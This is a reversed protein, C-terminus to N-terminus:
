VKRVKTRGLRCGLGEFHGQRANDQRVISLEADQVAEVCVRRWARVANHKLREVLILAASCSNTAVHKCVVVRSVDAELDVASWVGRCDVQVDM